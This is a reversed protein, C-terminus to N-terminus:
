GILRQDLAHAFRRRSNDVQQVAHAHHEIARRLTQEIVPTKAPRKVMASSKRPRCGTLLQQVRQVLLHPAMFGFSM